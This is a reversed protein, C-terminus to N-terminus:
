VAVADESANSVLLYGTPNPSDVSMKKNEEDMENKTVPENQPILESKLDTIKLDSKDDLSLKPFSKNKFSMKRSIEEGHVKLNEVPFGLFQDLSEWSKTWLNEEVEITKPANSLNIDHQDRAALVIESDENGSNEQDTKVDSKTTKRELGPPTGTNQPVKSVAWEYINEVVPKMPNEEPLARILAPILSELGPLVKQYKENLNPPIQKRQSICAQLDKETRSSRYSEYSQLFANLLMWQQLIRTKENQEAESLEDNSKNQKFQLGALIVGLIASTIICPIVAKTFNTESGSSETYGISGISGFGAIALFLLGNLVTISKNKQWCSKKAKELNPSPAELEKRCKALIDLIKKINVNMPDQEFQNNFEGLLESVFEHQITNCNAVSVM